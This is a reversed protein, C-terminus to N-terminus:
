LREDNEPTSQFSDDAAVQVLLLTVWVDTDRLTVLMTGRYGSLLSYLANARRIM